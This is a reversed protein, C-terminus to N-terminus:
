DAWPYAEAPGFPKETPDIRLACIMDKQAPTLIAIRSDNDTNVCYFRHDSGARALLWSGLKACGQHALIWGHLAQSGQVEERSALEFPVGDVEVIWGVDEAPDGVVLDSASVGLRTLIESADDFVMALEGEWLNESDAWYCRRDVSCLAEGEDACCWIGGQALHELVARKAAHARPTPVFDFFGLSDLRETARAAEGATLGVQQRGGLRELWTSFFM